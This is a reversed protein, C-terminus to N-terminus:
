PALGDFARYRAKEKHPSTSQPHLSKRKAWPRQSSLISQELSFCGSECSNRQGMGMMMKKRIDFILFQPKALTGLEMGNLCENTWCTIYVKHNTNAQIYRATVLTTTFCNSLTFFGQRNMNQNKFHEQESTTYISIWVKCKKVVGIPSYRIGNLILVCKMRSKDNFRTYWQM